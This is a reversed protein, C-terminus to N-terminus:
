CSKARSVAAAIVYRKLLTWSQHASRLWISGPANQLSSTHFTVEAEQLSEEHEVRIEAQIKCTYGGEQKRCATLPLATGAVSSTSQTCKEAGSSLSEHQCAAGSFCRQTQGKSACCVRSFLFFFVDCVSNLSSPSTGRMIVSLPVHEEHHNLGPLKRRTSWRWSCGSVILLCRFLFTIQWDTSLCM